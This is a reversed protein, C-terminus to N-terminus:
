VGNKIPMMPDHKKDMKPALLQAVIDVHTYRQKLVEIDSNLGPFGFQASCINYNEIDMWVNAMERDVQADYAFAAAQVKLKHDHM